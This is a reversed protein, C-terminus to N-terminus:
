QAPRQGRIAALLRAGSLARMLKTMAGDPPAEALIEDLQRGFTEADDSFEAARLIQGVRQGTITSYQAAFSRAAEYLARQDQRRASRLAALAASEGEAFHAPQEGPLAGPDLLGAMRQLPDVSPAKKKWGKGYTETIYEEDPEYGLAVIKGDREARANLDEPPETQRYVRPPMAGPFNWETWWKVPGQNFSGCLLDADAAVIKQAVGAHVKAQSLSAGNDTTMTQGVVVKSIAENMVRQLSEYDAAGSRAAELLEVIAEGKDNVPVLVGADTAIQRLMALGKRRQEPDDLQGASMKGIATPMGFKELFILWFKIDNRKFFVPWYLANALGLGYLQDHHDGGAVVSWFKREPMKRWASGSTWLHLNRKRDFRFRARDRVLIRDFRIRSSEPRWIVEAVGWGFFAAYLAKDTIDDWNIADMEEQLAAAAQQSLADKGGAEVVTECSTLALRRQAWTSAVQDDRLLETYIQLNAIGGKSKLVSDTPELLAVFPDTAKFSDLRLPSVLDEIPAIEGLTPAPPATDQETAM